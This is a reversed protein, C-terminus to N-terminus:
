IIIGDLYLGTVSPEFSIAGKHDNTLEVLLKFIDAQVKSSPTYGQYKKADTQLLLFM